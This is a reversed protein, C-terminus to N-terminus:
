SLVYPVSEYCLVGPRAGMVKGGQGPSTVASCREGSCECPVCVPRRNSVCQFNETYEYICAPSLTRTIEHLNMLKRRFSIFELSFLPILSLSLLCIRHGKDATYSTAPHSLRHAGRGLTTPEFASRAKVKKGKRRLRPIASNTTRRTVCM